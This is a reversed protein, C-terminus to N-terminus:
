TFMRYAGLGCSLLLLILILRLMSHAWGLKDLGIMLQSIDHGKTTVIELFDAVPKLLRFSLALSLAGVTMIGVGGIIATYSDTLEADGRFAFVLGLFILLVSFIGLQIGFQRLVTSLNAYVKNQSETFEYESM